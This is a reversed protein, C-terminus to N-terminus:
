HKRHFDTGLVESQLVPPWEPEALGERSVEIHRWRVHQGIRRCSEASWARELRKVWGRTIGQGGENLEVSEWVRVGLIGGFSTWEVSEWVRM